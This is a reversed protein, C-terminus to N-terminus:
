SCSNSSLETQGSVQKQGNSDGTNEHKFHFILTSTPFPMLKEEWVSNEM